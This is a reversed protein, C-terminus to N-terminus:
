NNKEQQIEKDIKRIQYESLEILGFVPLIIIPLILPFTIDKIWAVIGYIFVFLAYCGCLGIIIYYIIKTKKKM